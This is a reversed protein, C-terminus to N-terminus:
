SNEDTWMQVCWSAAQKDVVHMMKVRHMMIVFHECYHYVITDLLLLM